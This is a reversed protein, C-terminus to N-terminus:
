SPMPNVGRIQGLFLITDYRLVIKGNEQYTDYLKRLDKELSDFGPDSRSPLYSASTARGILGDYDLIQENPVTFEKYDKTDFFKTLYAADIDPTESKSANRDIIKDYDDMMGDEKKRENYVIMVNGSPKLIRAFEVRAKELDFWHLAQGATVLDISSGLLGTNEAARNVSVFKPYQSLDREAFSRMENNPEIGYVFNGNDLFIRSLIGTGSGVDAVIKDKTFGIQVGLIKLLDTPYSPRYKAYVEAKRTFKETFRGSV